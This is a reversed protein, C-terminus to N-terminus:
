FVNEQKLGVVDANFGDDSNCVVNLVTKKMEGLNNSPANHGMHKAMVHHWHSSQMHM